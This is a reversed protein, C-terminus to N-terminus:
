LRLRLWTTVLNVVQDYTPRRSPLRTQKRCRAAAVVIRRVPSSGTPLACGRGRHSTPKDRRELFPRTRPSGM